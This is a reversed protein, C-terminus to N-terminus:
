QHKFVLCLMPFSTKNDATVLLVPDAPICGLAPKLPCYKFLKWSSNRCKLNFLNVWCWMFVKWTWPTRDGELVPCVLTRYFLLTTGAKLLFGTARVLVSFGGMGWEHLFFDKAQHIILPLLENSAPYLFLSWKLKCRGSALFNRRSRCILFGQVLVLQWIM